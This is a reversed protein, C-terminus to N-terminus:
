MRAMGGGGSPPGYGLAGVQADALADKLQKLIERVERNEYINWGRSQMQRLIQQVRTYDRHAMLCKLVWIHTVVSVRKRQQIMAQFVAMMKDVQNAKAYAAVTASYVGEDPAIFHRRMNAWVEEVAALNNTRSYYMIFITSTHSSGRWADNPMLSLVYLASKIDYFRNLLASIITNYFQVNPYIGKSKMEKLIADLMDTDPRSYSYLYMGRLIIGYTVIDTPVGLRNMTSLIKIAGSFDSQRVRADLILNYTVTDPKIGTSIAWQLLDSADQHLKAESLEKIATNVTNATLPIGSNVMGQLTLKGSEPDGLIFHMQMRITWCINDPEVGENLMRRWSHEFLGIDKAKACGDLWFRWISPTPIVGVSLMDAWLHEGDEVSGCQMFANIFSTYYARGRSHEPIMGKAEEYIARVDALNKHSAALFLRDYLSIYEANPQDSYPRFSRINNLTWEIVLPDIGYEQLITEVGRAPPILNSIDEGSPSIFQLVDSLETPIMLLKRNYLFATIAAVVPYSRSDYSSPTAELATGDPTGLDLAEKLTSLTLPHGKQCEYWSKWLEIADEFFESRIHEFIGEAWLKDDNIGYESFTRLIESLSPLGEVRTRHKILNRVIDHPLRHKQLMLKVSTRERVKHKWLFKELADFVDAVLAGDRALKNSLQDLEFQPGEFGTDHYFSDSNDASSRARTDRNNPSKKEQKAKSNNRPIIRRDPPKSTPPVNKAGRDASGIAPTPTRTDTLSRAYSVHRATSYLTRGPGKAICQAAASRQCSACVYVLRQM